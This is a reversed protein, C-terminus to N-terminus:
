YTTEATLRSGLDDVRIWFNDNEAVSPDNYCYAALVSKVVGDGQRYAVDIDMTTNAIGATTSPSNLEATPSEWITWCKMSGRYNNHRVTGTGTATQTRSDPLGLISTNAAVGNISIGLSPVNTLGSGDIRSIMCEVYYRRNPEITLSATALQSPALTGTGTLTAKNTDTAHTTVATATNQYKNYGWRWFIIGRPQEWLINYNTQDNTALTGMSVSSLPTGESFNIPKYTAM